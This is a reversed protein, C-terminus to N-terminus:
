RQSATVTVTGHMNQPHFSCDYKYTGPKDFVHTLTDGPKLVGLMEGTDVLQVSHTFQDSNTWTVTTDAKVTIDAPSFLYSRPLDIHNTTASAATGGCAAGTAFSLALAIALGTRALSM